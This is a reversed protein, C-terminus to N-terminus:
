WTSLKCLCFRYSEQQFALSNAAKKLWSEVTLTTQPKYQYGDHLTWEIASVHRSANRPFRQICSHLAAKRFRHELVHVVIVLIAVMLPHEAVSADHRETALAIRALVAFPSSQSHHHLVSCPFCSIFDFLMFFTIIGEDTAHETDKELKRAHEAIYESLSTYLCVGYKM